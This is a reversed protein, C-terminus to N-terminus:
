RPPLLELYREVLARRDPPIALREQGARAAAAVRRRDAARGRNDEGHALLRALSTSSPSSDGLLAALPSGPEAAAAAEKRRQADELREAVESPDLPGEPPLALARRVAQAADARAELATAEADAPEDARREGEAAVDAGGAGSGRTGPGAARGGPAVPEDSTTPALFAVAALLGAGVLPLLGGPPLLRVEPPPAVGGGAHAAESAAPGQAAAAALGRGQAGAIRDLAWAADADRVAPVQRAARWAAPLAALLGLGLFLAVFGRESVGGVEPGFARWLLALLAAALLTWGIRGFAAALRARRTARRALAHAAGPWTRSSPSARTSV